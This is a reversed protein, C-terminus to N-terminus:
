EEIINSDKLWAVFSKPWIAMSEGRGNGMDFGHSGKSFVHLEVEVGAKLLMAYFDICKEVPTLRDIRANIIFMPCIAPTDDKANARCAILENVDDPVGPYFLGAFDPMSSIETGREGRLSCNMALHGGASFGCIGIKDPQLGLKSAQKRLIRIAQRGDAQVARQYSEWANAGKKGRLQGVRDDRYSGNDSSYVIM